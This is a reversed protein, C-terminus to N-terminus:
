REETLNFTEIVASTMKNMVSIKYCYVNLQVSTLFYFFLEKGILDNLLESM